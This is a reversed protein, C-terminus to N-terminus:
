PHAHGSRPRRPPPPHCPRRSRRRARRREPAWAAAPAPRRPTRPAGPPPAGAAPERRQRRQQPGPARAPSRLRRSTYGTPPGTRPPSQGSSPQPMLSPPRGRRRRPPRRCPSTSRTRTRAPLAARRHGLSRLRTALLDLSLPAPGPTTRSRSASWCPAFAFVRPSRFAAPLGPLSRAPLLRGPAMPQLRRLQRRLWTLTPRLVSAPRSYHLRSASSRSSARPSSHPRTRASRRAGHCRRLRQQQRLERRHRPRGRSGHVLIMGSSPAGARKTPRPGLARSPCTWFATATPLRRAGHRRAAGVVPRAGETWPM